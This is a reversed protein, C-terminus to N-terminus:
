DREGWPRESKGWMKYIIIIYCSLDSITCHMHMVIYENPWLSSKNQSYIYAEGSFAWSPQTPKHQAINAAVAAIGALLSYNPRFNRCSRVNEELRKAQAKGVM